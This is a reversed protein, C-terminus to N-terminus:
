DGATWATCHFLFHESHLDPWLWCGEQGPGFVIKARGLVENTRGGPLYAVDTIAEFFDTFQKSEFSFNDAPLDVDKGFVSFIVDPHVFALAELDFTSVDDLWVAATRNFRPRWFEIRSASKLESSKIAGSKPGLAVVSGSCGAERLESLLRRAQGDTMDVVLEQGALELGTLVAKRWPIGGGIRVALVNGVGCALAPVLAALLRAPSMLNDDFLIVSFEVPVIKQKSNLGSTWHLSIESSTNKQPGYWDYLRAICTKMLARNRDGVDQYARAFLEEDPVLANIWESFAFLKKPM